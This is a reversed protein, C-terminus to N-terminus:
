PQPKTQNSGWQVDVSELQQSRSAPRPRTGPWSDQNGKTGTGAYWDPKDTKRAACRYRCLQFCGNSSIVLALSQKRCTFFVAWLYFTLSFWWLGLACGPMLLFLAESCGCCVEHWATRSANDWYFREKSSKIKNKHFYVKNYFLIFVVFWHLFESPFFSGRLTYLWQLCSQTFDSSKNRTEQSCSELSAWPQLAWERSALQWSPMESRTAAPFGTACSMSSTSATRAPWSTSFRRAWWSRQGSSSKAPLCHRTDAMMSTTSTTGTEGSWM